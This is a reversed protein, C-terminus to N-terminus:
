FTPLPERRAIRLLLWGRVQNRLDQECEEQSAGFGDIEPMAALEGVYYSAEDQRLVSPKYTAQSMIKATLAEVEAQYPIRELFTIWEHPHALTVVEYLGFTMLLMGAVRRSGESGDIKLGGGYREFKARGCWSVFEEFRLPTPTLAVRPAFPITDWEIGDDRAGKPLPNPQRQTPLFPPWREQWDHEEGTWLQLLSLTLGPVAVSAYTIDQKTEVLRKLDQPGVVLAAYRGDPQLQHFTITMAEPEILWYEPVGGQEYRQRKLIRDQDASGEEIVEIAIAPPGELYRNYLNALRVRDIFVVDPTFGDEGLRIVWDCGYQKGLNTANGFHYLGWKLLNYLQTHRGSGHPGALAVEPTYAFEAAWIRWDALTQPEPQPAFVTRLAEWWLATPAMPLVYDPGYDQLLEYLVRRSGTLTSIILKGDILELKGEPMAAFWHNFWDDHNNTSM